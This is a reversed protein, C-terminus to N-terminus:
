APAAEYQIAPTEVRDKQERWKKLIRAATVVNWAKFTKLEEGMYECIVKGGFGEKFKNVGLLASDTSGNYWGGLDFTKVGGAQYHMMCEWILLRNARGIKRQAEKSSARAYFSAAHLSRVRVSDCYFVHYAQREGMPTDAAWIDLKGAQATRELWRRDAPGLHKLTAFGDYFDVFECLAKEDKADIKKCLTQDKKAAKKIDAATFGDMQALLADSNEILDVVRTYFPRWKGKADPRSRQHYIIWDVREPTAQNDFWVEGRTLFRSHYIIM